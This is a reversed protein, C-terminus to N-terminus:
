LFRARTYKLHAKRPTEMDYGARRCYLNVPPDLICFDSECVVTDDNKYSDILLQRCYKRCPPFNDRNAQCIEDMDEVSCEASLGNQCPNVGTRVLAAIVMSLVYLLLLLFLIGWFIEIKMSM